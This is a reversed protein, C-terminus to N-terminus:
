PVPILLLQEPAPEGTLGNAKRIAERTSGTQKALDWLTAEGARRLILSPRGPDPCVAEGATIAAVASFCQETGTTLDVSLEAKMAIRDSGTVAQAQAATPVATVRCSEDAALQQAGEWRAAAAALSGSERYYLVQFQGRYELTLSAGSRRQVPFDPLFRVDAVMGAATDVCQEPYLSERRSELIVPLQVEQEQLQLQCLPHYADETLRLQRTDTLLYQGVLGGKLKLQGDETELDLATPVIFWDIRADAGYEGRLSVYQSFPVEFDRSHLRGSDSRYLVHLEGCGRLVAKDTLIRQETVRPCLQWCILQEMRPAAEPLHLREELPFAKEGAEVALRVPYTNELLATGEPIEGPAPVAAERPVLVEASAALGARVLIRRPSVNRADAFRPLLQLRLSGEPLDEPLEWRMQFPVWGELCQERGETEPAYLVWIMMGGTFTVSSGQWEKSRLIPQGWAALVSGVDSMGEPVKLELTQEANQVPLQLTELCSIREMKSNAEM